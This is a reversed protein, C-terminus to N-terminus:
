KRATDRKIGEIINVFKISIVLFGMNYLSCFLFFAVKYPYVFSFAKDAEGNPMLQGSFTALSSLGLM